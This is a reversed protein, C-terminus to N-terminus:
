VVHLEHPPLLRCRLEDFQRRALNHGMELEPWRIVVIKEFRHGQLANGIGAPMWETLDLDFARVFENAINKTKGIILKM